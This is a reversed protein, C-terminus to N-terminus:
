PQRDFGVEIRLIDGFREVSYEQDIQRIVHEALRKRVLKEFEHVAQQIVPEAAHLLEDNLQERLLKLANDPNSILKPM